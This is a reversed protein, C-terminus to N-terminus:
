PRTAVTKMRRRRIYVVVGAPLDEIKQSGVPPSRRSKNYALEHTTGDEALEEAAKARGAIAPLRM